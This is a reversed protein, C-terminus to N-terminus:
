NIKVSFVLNVLRIDFCDAYRSVDTEDIFEFNLDRYRNILSIVSDERPKSIYIQTKTTKMASTKCNPIM